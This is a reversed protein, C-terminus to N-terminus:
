IVIFLDPENRYRSPKEGVISYKVTEESVAAPFGSGYRIVVRWAIHRSAFM